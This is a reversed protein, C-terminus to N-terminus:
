SLERVVKNAGGRRGAYGWGIRFVLEDRNENKGRILRAARLVLQLGTVEPREVRCLSVLSRM